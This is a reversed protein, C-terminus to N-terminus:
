DISYEGVIIAERVANGLTQTVNGNTWVQGQYAVGSGATTYFGVLYANSKPRYASPINALVTSTTINDTSRSACYIRVTRISPDYVYSGLTTVGSAAGSLAGVVVKDSLQSSWHHTGSYYYDSIVTATTTIFTALYVGSLRRFLAVTYIGSNFGISADGFTTYVSGQISEGNGMGSWKSVLASELAALTEATTFFATSQQIAADVESTSYVDLNDQVQSKQAATLQQQSITLVDTRLKDRLNQGYLTYTNVPVETGTILEMGHDSVTYENAIQFVHSVPTELVAYISDTDAVYDRGEEILEQITEESYALKEIRVTAKQLSFDIEDTVAGVALLGDPFYESMLTAISIVSETYAEFSGDYGATWDSWTMYVCTTSANGGTVWVYGDAPINFNGAAPTIASREGTLTYSFALSTYDGEVRFGYEDSYKVVRAYGNAHSYLNWGTSRFSTPTAPTITGRDGKVYVIVIEDGNVPTGTVTVGILEPNASWDTTYTLTITSSETVVAKFADEDITATIPTEGEERQAANVTMTLSEQVEGTHEMYGRLQTLWAKGNAISTTGGAARLVFQGINAQADDAVLNNATEVNTIRVNGDADGLTGNVSRVAKNDRLPLAAGDVELAEVHTSEDTISGDMTAVNGAIVAGAAVSNVKQAITQAGATGDFPIDAGTRGKLGTIEQAVTQPTASADMPIHSALLVIEGQADASQGDVKIATAIESKDAKLALADGVAKADAAEGEISLTDDIPVTVVDAPNIDFNINPIGDAM